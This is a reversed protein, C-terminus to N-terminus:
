SPFSRLTVRNQTLTIEGQAVKLTQGDLLKKMDNVTISAIGQQALANRWITFHCGERWRSCGFAKQNATVEGTGCLPCKRSLSTVSSKGKGKSKEEREFVVTQDSSKACEVLFASYRRISDMFRDAKATILGQDTERAMKSLAREWKGTMEASTIIEPAVQILRDGKETAVLTKGRRVIYGVQILREIIAARTAPTGLGSDKMSEKLSDDELTRGAHEMLGLLSADNHPSPPKTKCKKLSIAQVVRTDGISVHPLQTEPKEEKSDRYLARWGEKTPIQGVSKFQYDLVGTLVIASEYEYDPYLAAILRRVVMDYVKHELDPLRGLDTNQGTPVLAHHDNVKEDNYVRSPVPPEPQLQAAFQAYPEPLFALTQKIKPIMDRTLYRSDTRPYTLLKYKEYLSQAIELTKAASIGLLRNAERQLATLDFLQPPPTKKQERRADLIRAPQGEALEKIRAALAGDRCRQEQTEPDIWLGEYDGFNARVEHYDEPVFDRIERDRAVILRLTPTQVRGLTLLADFRLTFARTANMGVLWDAESRCRASAYLADYASAPKLHAFGERIAADTMSSIWLREVPKKCKAQAYIYRFILEGERGSDTACIIKETDASNMLSKVIAYQAKTKPLVKTKLVPLMPLQDMRWKKYIPDLEDPECLSVLHGLAWSVVYEEGILAGEGKGRCNLVRAIDRAVSPKEAVILTRM